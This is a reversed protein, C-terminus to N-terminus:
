LSKRRDKHRALIAEKNKEYYKRDKAAINEKNIQRYVKAESLIKEKNKAYYKKVALSRKEPNEKLWQKRTQARCVLCRKRKEVISYEYPHGKSCTTLADRKEKAAKPGTKRITHWNTENNNKIVSLSKRIICNVGMLGKSKPIGFKIKYETSTINHTKLHLPRIAKFWDGCILCQIRDHSFYEILEERNM